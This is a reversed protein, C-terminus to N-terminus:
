TIFNVFLSFKDMLVSQVQLIHFMVVLRVIFLITNLLHSMIDSSSLDNIAVVDIESHGLVSRLFVRGIRGFGNIEVRTKMLM